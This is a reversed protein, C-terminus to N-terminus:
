ERRERRRTEGFRRLASQNEQNIQEMLRRGLHGLREAEKECAPCYPAPAALAIKVEHEPMGTAIM